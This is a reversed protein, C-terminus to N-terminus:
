ECETEFILYIFVSTMSTFTVVMKLGSANRHLLQRVSLSILHSNIQAIKIRSIRYNRRTRHPKSPKPHKTTKPRKPTKPQKPTKPPPKPLNLWSHKQSDGRNPIPVILKDYVWHLDFTLAERFCTDDVNLIIISYSVIRFQFLNLIFRSLIVLTGTWPGLTSGSHFGIYKSRPASMRRQIGRDCFPPPFIDLWDFFSSHLLCSIGQRFVNCYYGLTSL